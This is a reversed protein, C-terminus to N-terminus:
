IDGEAYLWRAIAPGRLIISAVGARRLAAVVNATVADVALATGLRHSRAGPSAAGASVAGRGARRVRRPEAPALRRRPLLGRAHPGRAVTTAGRGATRARRGM